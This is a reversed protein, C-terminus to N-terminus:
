ANPISKSNTSDDCNNKVEIMAPTKENKGAPMPTVSPLKKVKSVKFPMSNEIAVAATNIILNRVKHYEVTTPNIVIFNM